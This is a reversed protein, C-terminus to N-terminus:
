EFLRLSVTCMFTAGAVLAASQLSVAPASVSLFDLLLANVAATGALSLAGALLGGLTSFTRASAARRVWATLLLSLLLAAVVAFAWVGVAVPEERLPLHWSARQPSEALATGLYVFPELWRLAAVNVAFGVIVVCVAVHVKNLTIARQKSADVTRRGLSRSLGVYALRVLGWQLRTLGWCSALLILMAVIAFIGPVPVQLWGFPIMVFIAAWWALGYGGWSLIMAASEVPGRQWGVSALQCILLVLTISLLLTYSLRVLDAVRAGQPSKNM